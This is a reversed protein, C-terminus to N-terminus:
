KFLSTPPFKRFLLKFTFYNVAETPHLSSRTFTFKTLHCYCMNIQAQAKSCAFYLIRGGSRPPSRGGRSKFLFAESCYRKNIVQNIIVRQLDSICFTEFSNSVRLSLYHEQFFKKFNFIFTLLSLWSIFM